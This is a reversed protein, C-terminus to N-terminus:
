REQDKKIEEVEKHLFDIFAGFAYTVCGVLVVWIGGEMLPTGNTSGLIDSVMGLLLAVGGLSILAIGILMINEKNVKM